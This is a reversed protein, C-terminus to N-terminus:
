KKLRVAVIEKGAKFAAPQVIEGHETVLHNGKLSRKYAEKSLEKLDKLEEELRVIEEIHSFDWRGASNRLELTGESLAYSKGELGISSLQEITEELIKDKMEKAKSEIKKLYIFAYSPELYGEKVMTVLDKTQNDVTNILKETIEM